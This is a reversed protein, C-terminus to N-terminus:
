EICILGLQYSAEKFTSIIKSEHVTEMLGGSWKLDYYHNVTVTQSREPLNEPTHITAIREVICETIKKARKDLVYVKDGTGFSPILAALAENVMEETNKAAKKTRKAAKKKTQM